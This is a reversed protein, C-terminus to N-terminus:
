CKGYEFIRRDIFIIVTVSISAFAGRLCQELSNLKM